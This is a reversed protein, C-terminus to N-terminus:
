RTTSALRFGLKPNYFKPDIGGRAYVNAAEEDRAVSGGRVIRSAGSEPGTPNTQSDSGYPSYWDSVWEDVNGSMDHLGLENAMKMGVPNTNKDGHEKYWGVDELTDSGSYLYGRSQNGGRAAYEWEAETPLRFNKRTLENLKELFEEIDAMNVNTKPLNNEEYTDQIGMVQNWIFRTVEYKGIYFDSLTVNHAPRANDPCAGVAGGPDCGMRFTGGRVQVMGNAIDNLSPNTINVSATATIKKSVNDKISVSVKCNSMGSRAASFLGEQNITGCYGTTEWLPEQDKPQGTPITINATFKFTGTAKIDLKDPSITIEPAAYTVTVKATATKTPDAEAVVTFEYIGTESPPVYTAVNNRNNVTFSGKDSGQWIIATNKADVTLEVSNGIVVSKTKPSISIRIATDKKTGTEGEGCATMFLLFLATIATGAFKVSRLYRLTM